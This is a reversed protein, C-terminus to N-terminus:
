GSTSVQDATLGTGEGRGQGQLSTTIEPWFKVEPSYIPLKDNDEPITVENSVVAVTLGDVAGRNELVTGDKQEPQTVIAAGGNHILFQAGVKVVRWHLEKTLYPVVAEPSLDKIIGALYREVLALTLPIQGTVQTHDRQDDVCKSCGTDRSQGLPDFIGVYTPSAAWLAVNPEQPPGLFVHVSYAGDLTHKEAKINTLWELYKNNPALDKLFPKSEKLSEQLLDEKLPLKKILTKLQANTTSLKKHVIQDIIHAQPLLVAGATPIGQKSQRIFKVISGYLHGIEKMLATKENPATPYKLGATEKYNYGFSTTTRVTRSTYWSNVDPRFPYLPTNMTEDTNGQLAFTGGSKRPVIFTKVDNDDEHLAQWIDYLRDVNRSLTLLATL